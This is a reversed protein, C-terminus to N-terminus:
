RREVSLDNQVKQPLPRWGSSSRIEAAETPWDVPAPPKEAWGQLEILRVELDKEEADLAKREVSIRTIRNEAQNVLRRLGRTGYRQAEQWRSVLDRTAADLAVAEPSAHRGPPVTVVTQGPQAGPAILVRETRHLDAPLPVTEGSRPDTYTGRRTVSQKGFTM